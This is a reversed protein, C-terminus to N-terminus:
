EANEEDEVELSGILRSGAATIEVLYNRKRRNERMTLYQLNWPVHLGTVIEGQLPIVHDVEYGDPCDRYIKRILKRDAHSLWKPTAQLRRARRQASNSRSPWPNFLSYNVKCEKDKEPNKEAWRRKIGNSKERNEVAWNKLYAAIKEKNAARHLLGKARCRERNKLYWARKYEKLTM